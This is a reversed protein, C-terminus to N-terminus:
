PSYDNKPRLVPDANMKRVYESELRLLILRLATPYPESARHNASLVRPVEEGSLQTGPSSWDRGKRAQVYSTFLSSKFFQYGVLHRTAQSSRFPEDHQSQRQKM